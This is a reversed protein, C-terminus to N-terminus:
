GHSRVRTQAISLGDHLCTGTSTGSGTEVATASSAAAGCSAESGRAAADREWCYGATDM